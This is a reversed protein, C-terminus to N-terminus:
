RDTTRLSSELKFTLADKTKSLVYLLAAISVMMEIWESSRQVAFAVRIPTTMFDDLVDYGAHLSVVLFWPLLWLPVAIPELPKWRSFLVGVLGGVGFLLRFWESRGQLVAVNHLTLEGQRNVQQIKEPTEFGFFQQGWAIEEMAILLLLISFCAYFVVQFRPMGTRAGVVALRIGLLGGVAFLVFTIFEVPHNEELMWLTAGRTPEFVLAVFCIFILVFPILAYFGGIGKFCNQKSNKSILNM